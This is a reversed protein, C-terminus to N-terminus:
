LCSEVMNLSIWDLNGVNGRLYMREHLEHRSSLGPIDYYRLPTELPPVGNIMWEYISKWKDVLLRPVGTTHFGKNVVILWIDVM